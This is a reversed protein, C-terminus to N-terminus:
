SGVGRTAAPLPVEALLTFGDQHSASATLTGGHAALRETLGVLGSGARTVAADAGRGDDRIEVSARERSQEIRISCHRARSHRIVNTVGERVVWALLGDLAEPLPGADFEISPAIGAALLLERANSLESGLEPRRYGLVASRVQRLADRATREVDAVESAAREPALRLLRSALESKLVIVSLSHGLLDHLDRAFRLREEAVALHALEDRAIHLEAVAITLQRIALAGAGFAAQILLMPDCRGGALCALAISFALLVGMTPVAWRPPLALGAAVIAHQTLWSLGYKPFLAVLCTILLAMAALVVLRVRLSRASPGAPTLDQQQLGGRLTLWLYLGALIGILASAATLPLPAPHRRVLLVLTIGFVLSWGLVFSVWLPSVPVRTDGAVDRHVVHTTASEAARDLQLASSLPAPDKWM